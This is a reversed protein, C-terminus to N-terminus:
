PFQLSSLIRRTIERTEPTAMLDHFCVALHVGRPTQTVVAKGEFDLLSEGEAFQFTAVLDLTTRVMDDAAPEELRGIEEMRKTGEGAGLSHLIMSLVLDREEQHANELRKWILSVFANDPSSQFTAGSDIAKRIRGAEELMGGQWSVPIEFSYGGIPDVVQRFRFSPPLSSTSSSLDRAVVRPRSPSGAKGNITPLAALASPPTSNQPPEYVAVFFQDFLGKAQWALAAQRALAQSSFRGIRVRYLFGKGGVEREVLYGSIGVQRLAALRAQAAELSGFADVQVAYTARRGKGTSQSQAGVRGWGNLVVLFILWGLRALMLARLSIPSFHSWKAARGQKM